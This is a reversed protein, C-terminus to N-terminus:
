LRLGVTTPRRSTYDIGYLIFILAFFKLHFYNKLRLQNLFCWLQPLYEGGHTIFLVTKPHGILDNQPIWDMIKTNAGLGAPTKGAYRWIVRQKLKSLARAIMEAKSSHM